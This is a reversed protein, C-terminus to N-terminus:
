KEKVSCKGGNKLAGTGMGHIIRVSPYGLMLADDLFKDVVRMAEEYRMGIM